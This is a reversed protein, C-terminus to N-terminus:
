TDLGLVAMREEHAQALRALVVSAERPEPADPGAVEALAQARRLATRARTMAEGLLKRAYLSLTGVRSPYQDLARQLLGLFVQEETTHELLSTILEGVPPEIHGALMRHVDATLGDGVYAKLAGEVWDTAATRRHYEDIASVFPEMLAVIDLQYGEAARQLVGYREYAAVALAALTPKMALEPARDAAISLRTFATLHTYACVGILESAAQSLGEQQGM